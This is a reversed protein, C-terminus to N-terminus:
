TCSRVRDAAGAQWKVYNHDLHGIFLSKTTFAYRLDRWSGIEDARNFQYRISVTSDTSGHYTVFRIVFSRHIMFKKLLGGAGGWIHVVYGLCEMYAM